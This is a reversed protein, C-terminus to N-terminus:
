LGVVAKLSHSDLISLLDLIIGHSAPCTYLTVWVKNLTVSSDKSSIFIPKVYLLGLNDIRTMLFVFTNRLKPLSPM